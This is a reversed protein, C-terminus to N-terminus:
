AETLEWTVRTAIEYSYGPARVGEMIADQCHSPKRSRNAREIRQGIELAKRGADGYLKIVGM